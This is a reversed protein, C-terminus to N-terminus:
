RSSVIKYIRSTPGNKFLFKLFMGYGGNKNIDKKLLLFIIGCKLEKNITYNLRYLNGIKINNLSM